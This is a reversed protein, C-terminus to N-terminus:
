EDIPVRHREMSVIRPHKEADFARHLVIFSGPPMKPDWLTPDIGDDVRAFARLAALVTPMVPRHTSLVLPAPNRLLRKAHQVTREPDKAHGEESFADDHLVPMSLAKALRRVSQHCRASPSSFVEVIGFAELLPVLAKAQSRGRGTLPREADIKGKFDSRKVAQTHRLIVLPTTATLTTARDVLDADAPYTLTQRTQDVPVWRIDDIEDHAIFGEDRASSAVWYDVHKPRGLAVYQQSPLRAGLVVQHGTEEDSERIAAAIVHEGPLLKGKPLSWDQRHPRHVALVSRQGDLDRLLVVGAARVVEDDNSM